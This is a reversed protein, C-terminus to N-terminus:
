IKSYILRLRMRQTTHSGGGVRVRGKVIGNLNPFLVLTQDTVLPPTGYEERVSYPASLRLDYLASTGTLVHQVYRSINFKWVKIKNGSGDVTNIPFSGFSGRNYDSGDFTLDYPITRFQKKPLIITPDFADLYLFEPAPFITDTNNNDHVQEVILEARHILRNGITLLDPIKIRAFSGPTNQIYVLNDEAPSQVTSIEGFSHDRQIYSAAASLTTFRFYEVTTDRKGMKDYRYYIALKTNTGGLDFGMVANGTSTSQLAFGKFKTKFASDSLYAGNAGSTSDYDLLRRGFNNQDLKIRLQNKTTDKYAKVSDNLVAPLFTRQGLLNTTQFNNERILYASDSKFNASQAIESVTITQPVMTDGYTEVYDLVLVVSDLYLSDKNANQFAFKYITPKLELFMRADTGGFLPDNNIKGLFFEESRELRLSDSFNDFLGNFTQVSISTDFTNINDVVPILDAGLTTADNIKRCSSFVIISSAITVGLLLLLQRNKM